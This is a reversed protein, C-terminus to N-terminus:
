GIKSIGTSEELVPLNLFLHNTCYKLQIQTVYLLILICFCLGAAICRQDKRPFLRTWYKLFDPSTKSSDFIIFVYNGIYMLFLCRQRTNQFNTNLYSMYLCHYHDPTSGANWTLVFQASRLSARFNKSYKMHFIVIKRWFIMNKGIKPHARALYVGQIRGQM